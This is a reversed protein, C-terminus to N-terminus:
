CRWSAASEDCYTRRARSTVGGTLAMPCSLDSHRVRTHALPECHDMARACTGAPAYRTGLRVERTDVGYRLRHDKVRLELCEQLRLGAGYLLAAVLWPVGSLRALVTRVEDVSMVVPVHVSPKARPVHEIAGIDKRLVEKYLFLVASFAQTQTSAAVRRETALWTLFATVEPAGLDTPHRKGHFVIYRRIWHVYSEETRRSYHRARFSACVRDLLKPSEM